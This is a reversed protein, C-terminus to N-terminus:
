RQFTHQIFIHFISSGVTMNVRKQLLDQPFKINGGPWYEGIKMINAGEANGSMNWYLIDYGRNPDGNEDFYISTGDITLNVKRIEALLQQVFVM